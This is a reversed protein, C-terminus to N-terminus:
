NFLVSVFKKHRIKKNIGKARTVEENDASVLSDMKSKLGAFESIIVGKFEDKMKCIAKKNVTDFFKSHLPYVSFDFLDKDLYFDEYVDETNIEYVLSDTDTLMLKADFKDKIYGYHFEYM